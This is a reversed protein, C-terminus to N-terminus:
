WAKKGPQFRPELKHDLVDWAQRFVARPFLEERFVSHRFAGPKKVLSGILHRYDVRRVAKDGDSALQALYGTQGASVCIPYLDHDVDNGNDGCLRALSARNQGREAVNKSFHARFSATDFISRGDVAFAPRLPQRLESRITEHHDLFPFALLRECGVRCRTVHSGICGTHLVQNRGAGDM